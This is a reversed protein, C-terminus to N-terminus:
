AVNSPMEPWDPEVGLSTDIRNLVIRYKKWSVLQAAEAETAEGLEVADQLPQIHLNALAMLDSKKNEAFMALQEATFPAPESLVPQGYENAVIAKGKSQGAMLNSYWEDSLPLVDDPWSGAAEYENRLCSPYFGGTSASYFYNIDSNNIANM